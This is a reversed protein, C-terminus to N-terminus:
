RCGSSDVGLQDRRFRDGGLWRSRWRERRHRSLDSPELGFDDGRYRGPGPAANFEAHADRRQVSGWAPSVLAHGVDLDRDRARLWVVFSLVRLGEAGKTHLGSLFDSEIVDTLSCKRFLVTLETPRAYVVVDTLALPPCTTPMDELNLHRIPCTLGLL